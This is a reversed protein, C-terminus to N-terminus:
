LPRGATGRSLEWETNGIVMEAAMVAKAVAMVAEAAMVALWM